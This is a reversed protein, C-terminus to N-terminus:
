LLSSLLTVMKESQLISKLIEIVKDNNSINNFEKENVEDYIHCPFIQFPNQLVSAILFRVNNMDPVRIYLKHCLDNESRKILNNMDKKTEYYKGDTTEVYGQIRGETKKGIYDAQQMLISKPSDDTSAVIEPWLDKCMIYEKLHEYQFDSNFDGCVISLDKEDNLNEIREIYDRIKVIRENQEDSDINFKDYFHIPFLLIM